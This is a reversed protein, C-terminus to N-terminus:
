MLMGRTVMVNPQLRDPVSLGCERCRGIRIGFCNLKGAKTMITQEPLVFGEEGCRENLQSRIAPISLSSQRRINRERDWWHLVSNLHIWLVNEKEQYYALFAIKYLDERALYSVIDEIFDDVIIRTRGSDLTLITDGLMDAFVAGDYAITKGGWKAMHENYLQLGVLVVALNNRVRDPLPVSTLSFTESWCVKFRKELSKANEQLTRRIYRGAFDQLPLAVLQKFVENSRSGEAITSPHLNIIITREQMAGIPVADEGDLIVPATLPFVETTLDSRGRADLGVDYAMRLVKLFDRRVSQLRFEGFTVPVANTSAFLTRVVFNTTNSAWAAASGNGLLPNYLHLISSTKGSGQTGYVNLFPFRVGFEAFVTKLPAAFYWGIIPIVAAERNALPLKQSIELILQRYSSKSPFTYRLTPSTDLDQNRKTILRGRYTYPAESPPYSKDKGLTISKTVWFDDHRGLTSTSYASPMGLEELKGTLYLLLRRVEQDTGMWQWEINPLQRMFAQSSAFAEKPFVIGDWEGRETNIVGMLADEGSRLDHLVKTPTYIFTSIQRSGGRPGRFYWCNSVVSIPSFTAGYVSRANKITLALYREPRKEERSRDGVPREAFIRAIGEESMGAVLLERVTFFDRESRSKFGTTNGTSIVKLTKSDLKVVAAMDAVTYLLHPNQELIEVAIIKSPDKHNYTGPIRMVRTPDHTPDGGVLAAIDRMIQQAQPPVVSSELLWYTHLGHGSGVVFSPPLPFLDLSVRAAREGGKFDKFDIDAWLATVRSVTDLDGRVRPAAGFFLDSNPYKKAFNPVEDTTDLLTREHPKKCWVYIQEEQQLTRFISELLM